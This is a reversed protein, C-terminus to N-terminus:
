PYIYINTTSMDMNTSINIRRGTKLETPKVLEKNCNYCQVQLLSHLNVFVKLDTGVVCPM